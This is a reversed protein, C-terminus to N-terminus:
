QAIMTPGVLGVEELFYRRFIVHLEIDHRTDTNPHQLRPLAEPPLGDLGGVMRQAGIYTLEPVSAYSLARKATHHRMLHSLWISEATYQNKDMTKVLYLGGKGEVTDAVQKSPRGAKRMCAEELQNHTRTMLEMLTEGPLPCVAGLPGEYEHMECYRAIEDDIAANAKACLTDDDMLLAQLESLAALEKQPVSYLLSKGNKGDKGAGRARSDGRLQLFDARLRGNPLGLNREQLVHEIAQVQWILMGGRRDMANSLAAAAAAREQERARRERQAKSRRATSQAQMAAMTAAAEAEERTAGQQVDSRRLMPVPPPPPMRERSPPERYYSSGGTASMGSVLDALSVSSARSSARSDSGSGAADGRHQGLDLAAVEADVRSSRAGPGAAALELELRRAQAEYESRRGLKQQQQEDLQRRGKSSLKAIEKLKKRTKRLQRTFREFPTELLPTSSRPSAEASPKSAKSTSLLEEEDSTSSASSSSRSSAIPSATPKPKRQPKPPKQKPPVKPVRNKGWAANKFKNLPPGGKKKKRMIQPTCACSKHTM